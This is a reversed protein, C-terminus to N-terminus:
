HNLKWIYGEKLFLYVINLKSHLPYFIKLTYNIKIEKGYTCQYAMFINYDFKVILCVKRVDFYEKTHTSFSYAMSFIAIFPIFYITFFKM